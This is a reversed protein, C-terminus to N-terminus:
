QYLSTKKKKFNKVKIFRLEDIKKLIVKAKPQMHFFVKGCSDDYLTIVQTKGLKTQSYHLIM